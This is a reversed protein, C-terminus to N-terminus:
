GENRSLEKAKSSDALTMDYEGPREPLYERPYDKGFCDAIENISCNVGRGLEFDEARFDKGMISILADAIDYVHTFDRRQEGDGVITIPEGNKVQNIWKGIVAAYKGNLIQGPGFVNYFRCIDVHM